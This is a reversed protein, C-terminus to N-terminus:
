MFGAIRIISKRLPLYDTPKDLLTVPKPNKIEVKKGGGQAIRVWTVEQRLGDLRYLIM